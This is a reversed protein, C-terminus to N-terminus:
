AGKRQLFLRVLDYLYVEANREHILSELDEYTDIDRLTPGSHVSLGASRARELTQRYVRETSWDIGEFLEEAFSERSFGILYYGGDAAPGIVVDHAQLAQFYGAILFSDIQPIDSGILLVEDVGEAFLERFAGAMREGLDRGQQIRIGACGADAEPRRKESFLSSGEAPLSDFYPVVIERLPELNSLLDAAMARYAALAQEDGLRRALRTKVQGAVPNKFFVALRRLPMASAPGVPYVSSDTPMM